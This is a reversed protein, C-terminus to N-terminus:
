SVNARARAAVILGWALVLVILTHYVLDPATRPGIGIAITFLGVLTGLLAFGQTALGTVRTWAPRVFTSILGVLLVIAIVGEAIRAQRHQYGGILCRLSHTVRRRLERRSSVPLAPNIKERPRTQRM